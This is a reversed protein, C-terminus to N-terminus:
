GDRTEEQKYFELDVSLAKTHKCKQAGFFFFFLPPLFSLCSRLALRPRQNEGRSRLPQRLLARLASSAGAAPRRLSAVGRERSQEGPEDEDESLAAFDAAVAILLVWFVHIETLV